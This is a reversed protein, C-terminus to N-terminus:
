ELSINWYPTNRNEYFDSYLLFSMEEAQDTFLTPRAQVHTTKRPRDSTSRACAQVECCRSQYHRSSGLLHFIQSTHLLLNELFFAAQRLWVKPTTVSWQLVKQLSHQSLHNQLCSHRTIQIARSLDLILAKFPILDWWERHYYSKNSSSGASIRCWKHSSLKSLIMKIKCTTPQMLAAVMSHLPSGKSSHMWRPSAVAEVRARFKRNARRRIRLLLQLALSEEKQLPAM